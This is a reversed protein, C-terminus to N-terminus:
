KSNAIYQYFNKKFDNYFQYTIKSDFANDDGDGSRFIDTKGYVRGDYNKIDSNSVTFCKQSNFSIYDISGLITWYYKLTKYGSLEPKGIDFSLKLMNPAFTNESDYISINNQIFLSKLKKLMLEGAIKNKIIIVGVGKSNWILNIENSYYVNYDKDIAALRYRGEPKSKFTTKKTNRNIQNRIPQWKGNTEKEICFEIIDNANCEWELTFSNINGDIARLKKPMINELLQNVEAAYESEPYQKLFKNYNYIFNLKKANEFAIKESNNQKVAKENKEIDEPAPKNWSNKVDMDEYDIAVQGSIISDYKKDTSFSDVLVYIIGKEELLDLKGTIVCFSKDINFKIEDNNIKYLGSNKISNIYDIIKKTNKPDIIKKCKLYNKLYKELRYCLLNRKSDSMKTFNSVTFTINKYNENIKKNIIESLFQVASNVSPMVSIEEGRITIIKNKKIRKDVNNNFNNCGLLFTISILILLKNKQLNSVKM